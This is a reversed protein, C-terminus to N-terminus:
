MELIMLDFFKRLPRLPPIRGTFRHPVSDLGIGHNEDHKPQLIIPIAPLIAADIRVSIVIDFDAGPDIGPVVGAMDHQVPLRPPLLQGSPGPLVAIEEFTQGVPHDSRVAEASLCGGHRDIRTSFSL